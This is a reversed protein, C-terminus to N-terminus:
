SAFSQKDPKEINNKGFVIDRHTINYIMVLFNKRGVLIAFSYYVIDIAGCRILLLMNNQLHLLDVMTKEFVSRHKIFTGSDSQLTFFSPVIIQFRHVRYKQHIKMKRVHRPTSQMIDPKHVYMGM